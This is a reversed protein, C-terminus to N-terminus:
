CFNRTKYRSSSLLEGLVHSRPCENAGDVGVIIHALGLVFVSTLNNYGGTTERKLLEVLGFTLLTALVTILFTRGSLHLGVRSIGRYVEKVNCDPVSGRVWRCPSSRIAATSGTAM